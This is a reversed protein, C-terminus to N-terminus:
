EAFFGCTEKEQKTLTGDRSLSAGDWAVVRRYTQRGSQVLLQTGLRNATSHFAFVRDYVPRGFQDAGLATIAVPAPLQCVLVQLNGEYTTDEKLLRYGLRGDGLPQLTESFHDQMRNLGLVHVAASFLNDFGFKVYVFVLLAFALVPWFRRVPSKSKFHRYGDAM